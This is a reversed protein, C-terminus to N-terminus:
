RNDVFWASGDCIIDIFKFRTTNGSVTLVTNNYVWNSPVSTGSNAASIGNLVFNTGTGGYLYFRILRGRFLNSPTPLTVTHAKDIFYFDFLQAPTYGSMNTTGNAALSNVKLVASPRSFINGDSDTVLFNDSASTSVPIVRIRADGNIDLNKTPDQTNIGVNGTQCLVLNSLIIAFSILFSKM